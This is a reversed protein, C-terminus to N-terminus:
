VEVGSLRKELLQVRENARKQRLYERGLELLEAEQETIVRYGALEARCKLLTDDGTVFCFARDLEGKWPYDERSEATFGNLQRETIKSGVLFSMEDAIQARSKGSNRISRTLVSRILAADNLSGALVPGGNESFLLPQSVTSTGSINKAGNETVNSPNVTASHAHSSSM